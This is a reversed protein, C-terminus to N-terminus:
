VQDLRGSDEGVTRHSVKQVSCIVQMDSADAVTDYSGHEIATM